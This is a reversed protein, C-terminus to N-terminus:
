QATSRSQPNMDRASVFRRDTPALPLAVLARWPVWRIAVHERCEPEGDAIVPVFVILFQSGPAGDRNLFQLTCTCPVDRQNSSLDDADFLQLVAQRTAAKRNLIGVIRELQGEQGIGILRPGYAGSITVGDPEVDKQLDYAGRLYYDISAFDSRGSLSWCSERLASFPTGNTKTRSLRARVDTLELLVGTIETCWGRSANVRRGQKSVAELADRMLDDLTEQRFYFM